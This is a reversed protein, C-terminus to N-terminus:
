RLCDGTAMGAFHMVPTTATNASGRGAFWSMPTGAAPKNSSITGSVILSTIMNEARYTLVDTTGNSRWEIEVAYLDTANTNNPFGSGGNLAVKTCTGSGDNHMITLQSDGSDAGLFVCNVMASPESVNSWAPNVSHMGLGFQGAAIADAISGMIRVKWGYAVGAAPAFFMSTAAGPTPGRNGALRSVAAAAGTQSTKAIGGYKSASSWNIGAVVSSDLQAVGPPGNFTQMTATGFVPTLFQTFDGRFNTVAGVDVTNSYYVDDNDDYSFILTEGFGAWDKYGPPVVIAGSATLRYQSLNRITVLDRALAGSTATAAFVVSTAAAQETRVDRNSHAAHTINTPGAGLTVLALFDSKADLATQLDTQDSLTGGIAGWDASGGSGGNGGGSGMDAGQMSVAAAGTVAGLATVRFKRAGKVQVTYIDEEASTITATAVGTSQRTFTSSSGLTVWTGDAVMVQGSLGGSATYTGKVQVGVYGLGRTEIEVASRSTATGAPVLNQTTIVGQAGPPLDRM